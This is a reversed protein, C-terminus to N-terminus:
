MSWALLSESVPRYLPATPVLFGTRCKPIHSTLCLAFMLPMSALSRQLSRSYATTRHSGYFPSGVIVLLVSPHREILEPLIQLLWHVGKIPIIRGMFLVVDRGEWGRQQRLLERRDAGESEWRSPFRDTDVGIHVVRLKPEAEPMRLAM